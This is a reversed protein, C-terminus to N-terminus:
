TTKIPQQVLLYLATGYICKQATKTARLNITPEITLYDHPKLNNNM